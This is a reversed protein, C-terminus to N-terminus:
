NINTANITTNLNNTTYCHNTLLYTYFNYCKLSQQTSQSIFLWGAVPMFHSQIIYLKPWIVLTVPDSYPCIRISSSVLPLKPDNVDWQPLGTGHHLMLAATMAVSSPLCPTTPPSGSALLLGTPPTTFKPCWLSASHGSSATLPTPTGIPRMVQSVPNGPFAVSSSSTTSPSASHAAYEGSQGLQLLDLRANPSQQKSPSGFGRSLGPWGTLQYSQQQHQQQHPQHHQHQQHVLPQSEHSQFTPHQHHPHPPQHHQQQHLHPHHHQPPQPQPVLQSEDLYGTPYVSPLFTYGTQSSSNTGTLSANTSTYGGPCYTLGASQVPFNSAAHSLGLGPGRIYDAVLTPSVLHAHPSTVPSSVPLLPKGPATLLAASPTPYQHHECILEM